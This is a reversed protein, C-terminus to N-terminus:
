ALSGRSDGALRYALRRSRDLHSTLNKAVAAVADSIMEGLTGECVTRDMFRLPGAAGKQTGAHVAVDIFLKPYFQQPYVGAALLGAKTVNGQPDLFNLREM